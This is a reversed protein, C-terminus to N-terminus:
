QWKAKQWSHTRVTPIAPPLDSNKQGSHWPLHSGNSVGRGAFELSLDGTGCCADIVVGSALEGARAVVRRRWRRDIGLSLAHNLFDYSGAIRAFMSRVQNAEPMIERRPGLLM